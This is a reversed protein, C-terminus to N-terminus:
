ETEILFLLINKSSCRKRPDEKKKAPWTFIRGQFFHSYTESLGDPCLLATRRAPRWPLGLSYPTSATFALCRLCFVALPKKRRTKRVATQEEAPVLGCFCCFKEKRCFLASFKTVFFASLAAACPKISPCSFIPYVFFLKEHNPIKNLICHPSPEM